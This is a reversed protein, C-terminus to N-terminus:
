PHSQSTPARFFLTLSLFSFTMGFRHYSVQLRTSCRISFCENIRQSLQPLEKLRHISSLAELVQQLPDSVFIHWQFHNFQQLTKLGLDFSL